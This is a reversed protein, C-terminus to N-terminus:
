AVEALLRRLDDTTATRPNNSLRERNVTRVAPDIVKTPDLGAGALTTPVGIEMMLATIMSRAQEPDDAGITDCISAIADLISAAPRPGQVSSEDVGANFTLVAGLTMAAAVGHPIGHVATLHYSLAHSATTKAISIAEGATTSARAM